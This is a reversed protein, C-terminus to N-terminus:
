DELRYPCICPIRYTWYTKYTVRCPAGKKRAVKISNGMGSFQPRRRRCPVPCGGYGPCPMMRAVKRQKDRLKIATKRADRRARTYRKDEATAEAWAKVLTPKCKEISSPTVGSDSDIIPM